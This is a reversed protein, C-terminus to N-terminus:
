VGCCKKYKKGSGCPCPDNRGVKDVKRPTAAAPAAASGATAAVPAAVPAQPAAAKAEEAAQPLSPTFGDNYTYQLDEEARAA